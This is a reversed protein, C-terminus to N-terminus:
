MPPNMLDPPRSSLIQQPQYIGQSEQSINSGRRSGMSGMSGQRHYGGTQAPLFQSPPNSMPSPQSLTNYSAHMLQTHTQSLALDTTSARRVPNSDNTTAGNLAAYTTKLCIWDKALLSALEAGSRRNEKAYARFSSKLVDILENERSTRRSSPRLLLLRMSMFHQLLNGSAGASSSSEGTSGDALPM